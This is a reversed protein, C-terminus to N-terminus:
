LDINVKKMFNMQRIPFLESLAPDLDHREIKDRAEHNSEETPTEVSESSTEEDYSSYEVILILSICGLIIKAMFFAM